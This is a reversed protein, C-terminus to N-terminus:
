PLRAWFLIRKFAYFYPQHDGLVELLRQRYRDVFADYLNPPLARAFRTLTTGKTWEVVDATSALVHGYVQLRVHQRAFGLEHLLEAYREPLLVNAAVPDVISAPDLAAVFPAEGAVEAIVTHSAHTANTPVQIALQGGPALLGTLRALQAEHDPSWQLSANGFIVDLPDAPAFKTLDALQFRIGHHDLPSRLMAASTDIGLTQGAEVRRHLDVTLEGTGCGLDVVRGGPVPEILEVLDDFPQRRERAFRVYQDPNWVDGSAM